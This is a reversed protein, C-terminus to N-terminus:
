EPGESELRPLLHRPTLQETPMLERGRGPPIWFLEFKHSGGDQFYRVEIEHDGRDLELAPGEVYIAGHHGGNDVVLEGNIFLWSGDDSNTGFRYVGVQDIRLTGQWIISYPSPIADTSALVLDHQITHPPGQWEPNTYYTGLLGIPPSPSTYFASAPIDAAPV